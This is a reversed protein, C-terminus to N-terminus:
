HRLLHILILDIQCFSLPLIHHLSSTFHLHRLLLEIMSYEKNPPAVVLFALHRVPDDPVAITILPTHGTVEMNSHAVIVKTNLALETAIIDM